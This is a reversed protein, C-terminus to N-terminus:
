LWRKKYVLTATQAPTFDFKYAGAPVVFGQWNTLSFNTKNNALVGDNKVTRLDMDIEWAGALSTDEIKIQSTTGNLVILQETGSAITFTIKGLAPATGANTKSVGNINTETTDTTTLAYLKATFSIEFICYNYTDEVVRIGEPVVMWQKSTEDSFILTKYTMDSPYFYPAINNRLTDRLAARSVGKIFCRATLNRENNQKYALLTNEAKPLQSKIFEFPPIIDRGSVNLVSFIASFDTGNYIM